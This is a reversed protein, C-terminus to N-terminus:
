RMSGRPRFGDRGNAAVAVTPAASAFEGTALPTIQVTRVVGGPWTSSTATTTSAPGFHAAQQVGSGSIPAPQPPAYGPLRIRPAPVEGPQPPPLAVARMRVGMSPAANLTPGPPVNIATQVPAALPQRPPVIPALSIAPAAAQRAIQPSRWKGQAVASNAAAGDIPMTASELNQAVASTVPQNYMAPSVSPRPTAAAVQVAAQAAARPPERRPPAAARLPDNDTPIKIPSQSTFAVTDRQPAATENSTEPKQSDSAAAWATPQNPAASQMAPLPDGPYYPAAQGPLLM